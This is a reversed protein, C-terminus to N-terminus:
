YTYFAPVWKTKSEHWWKPRTSTKGEVRVQKGREWFIILKPFFFPLVVAMSILVQKMSVIAWRNELPFFFSFSDSIAGLTDHRLDKKKKTLFPFLLYSHTWVCNVGRHQLCCSRSPEPLIVCAGHFPLRHHPPSGETERHVAEYYTAPFTQATNHGQGTAPFASVICTTARWFRFM